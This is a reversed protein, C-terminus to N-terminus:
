KMERDDTLDHNIVMITVEFDTPGLLTQKVLCILRKPPNGNINLDAPGVVLSM